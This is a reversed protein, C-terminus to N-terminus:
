RYMCGRQYQASRHRSHAVKWTKIHETFESQHHTSLTCDVIRVRETSQVNYLSLLHGELQNPYNLQATPCFSNLQNLDVSCGRLHQILQIAGTRSHLQNSIFHVTETRSNLLDPRWKELSTRSYGHSM